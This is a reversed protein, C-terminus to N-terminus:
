MNPLINKMLFVVELFTMIEWIISMYMIKLNM